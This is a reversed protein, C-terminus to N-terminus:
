RPMKRVIVAFDNLLYHHDIAVWPSLRAQMDALIEAPECYQAEPNAGTSRRSILTLAIGVEAWDFMRRTLMEFRARWGENPQKHGFLGNAVVWDCPIPPTTHALVDDAVFRGPLGRANAEAIFEPVIDVGLYDSPAEGREVAYALLEGNGCGLDIVRKGAIAAHRLMGDFRARQGNASGWFRTDPNKAHKERYHAIEDFYANTM